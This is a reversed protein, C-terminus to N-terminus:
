GGHHNAVPTTAAQLATVGPYIHAFEFLDHATMGAPIVHTFEHKQPTLELLMTGVSKEGIREQVTDVITFATSPVWVHEVGDVSTMRVQHTHGAAVFRLDRQRLLPLLRERSARPVYRTHVIDEDLRDRFLPKHLFVGLPGAHASLAAVLWEYQADEEESGTALLLANLGILQWGSTELSWRDAGFLGRYERLRVGDLPEDTPKGPGADHDGIDHNGPIFLMEPRPSGFQMRAFQLETSDHIGDAAIDGLHIVLDPAVATIWREAARLNHILLTDKSSLHTDSILAIKM